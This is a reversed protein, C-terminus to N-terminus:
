QKVSVQDLLKETTKREKKLARKGIKILGGRKQESMKTEEPMMM